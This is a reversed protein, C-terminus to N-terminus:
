SWSSGGGTANSMTTTGCGRRRRLGNRTRASRSGRPPCPSRARGHGRSPFRHASPAGGSSGRAPLFGRNARPTNSPSSIANLSPCDSKTARQSRISRRLSWLIGITNTTNSTSLRTPVSVIRSGYRLRALNELVENKSPRVPADRWRERGARSEPLDDLILLELPEDHLWKATDVLGAFASPELHLIPDVPLVRDFSFLDGVPSRLRGL